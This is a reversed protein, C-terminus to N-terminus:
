LATIGFCAGTCGWNWKQLLLSQIWECEWWGTSVLEWYYNEPQQWATGPIKEPCKQAKRKGGQWYNTGQGDEPLSLEEWNCLADKFCQAASTQATQMSNTIFHINVALAFYTDM